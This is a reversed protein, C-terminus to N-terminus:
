KFKFIAKAQIFGVNGHESIANYGLSFQAQKTEVGIHPNYNFGTTADGGGTFFAIGVGVGAFFKSSFWIRPGALISAYGFSFGGGFLRNYALGGYLSFDQSLKGEGQMEASASVATGGNFYLGTGVGLGFQFKKESQANNQATAQLVVFPLLLIFTTKKMHYFNLTSHKSM